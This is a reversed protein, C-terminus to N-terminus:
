YPGPGRSFVFPRHRDETEAIRRVPLAKPWFGTGPSVTNSRTPETILTVYVGRALSIHERKSPSLPGRHPNM